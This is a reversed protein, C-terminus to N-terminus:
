SFTIIPPKYASPQVPFMNSLELEMETEAEPLQDTKHISIAM